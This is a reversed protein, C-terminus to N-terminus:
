LGWRFAFGSSVFLLRSATVDSMGFSAYFDWRNTITAIAGIVGSLTSSLSGGQQYAPTSASVTASVALFPALQVEGGVSAGVIVVHSWHLDGTEDPNRNEAITGELDFTLAALHPALVLKHEVGATQAEYLHGNSQTAGTTAEIYIAAPIAGTAVAAEVSFYKGISADLEVPGFAHAIYSAFQDTRLTSTATSSLSESAGTESIGPDLVVPRDVVQDPYPDASTIRAVLLVGVGVSKIVRCITDDRM